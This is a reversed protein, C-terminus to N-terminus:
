KNPCRNLFALGKFRNNRDKFINSNYKKGKNFRKLAKLNNDGIINVINYSLNRKGANTKINKIKIYKKLILKTLIINCYIAEQYEKM